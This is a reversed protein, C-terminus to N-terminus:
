RHSIEDEAIERLERATLGRLHDPIKVKKLLEDRLKEFEAMAIGTDIEVNKNENIFLRVKKGPELGLAKRISSAITITGKSTITTEYSM